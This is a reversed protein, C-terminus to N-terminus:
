NRARVLWCAAPMEVRGGVVFTEIDARAEALAAEREAEDTVAAFFRRGTDSELMLTMRGDVGDDGDLDYHAVSDLRDIEIASWGADILIGRLRAADAFAAPGPAHPDPPTLPAGMAALLKRAGSSIAPNEEIGRWCVFTMTAGDQAARGFNTFAAVPDDFFMVGFRSVIQDFPGPLPDSQADAVVFELDGFRERAGAIMTPSIDLGVMRGGLDAVAGTLTGTGCGIDAIREGHEVVIADLLRGTVEALMRDFRRAHQVWAPGSVETWQRRMADNAM